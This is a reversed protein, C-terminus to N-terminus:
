RACTPNHCSPSGSIDGNCADLSIDGEYGNLGRYTQLTVPSSQDVDVTHRSRCFHSVRARAAVLAHVTQMQKQLVLPSVRGFLGTRSFRMRRKRSTTNRRVCVVTRREPLRKMSPRACPTDVGRCSVSTSRRASRASHQRAQARGYVRSESRRRTRRVSAGRTESRNLDWILGTAKDRFERVTSIKEHPVRTAM